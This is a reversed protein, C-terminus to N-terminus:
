TLLREREASLQVPDLNLRGAALAAPVQVLREVAAATAAGEDRTGHVFLEFVGNELYTTPYRRWSAFDATALGMVERGDGTSVVRFGDRGLYQGVHEIMM